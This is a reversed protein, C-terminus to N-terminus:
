LSGIITGAYYTAIITVPSINGGQLIAMDHIEDTLSDMSLLTYNVQNTTVPSINGGGYLVDTIYTNYTSFDILLPYPCSYQKYYQGEITYNTIVRYYAGWTANNLIQPDTPLISLITTWVGSIDQQVEIYQLGIGTPLSWRLVPNNPNIAGTGSPDVLACSQTGIISACSITGNLVDQTCVPTINGGVGDVMDTPTGVYMFIQRIQTPKGKDIWFYFTRDTSDILDCTAVLQNVPSTFDVPSGSALEWLFTHGGPQGSVVTATLTLSSICPSVFPPMMVTTVKTLKSTSACLSVQFPM